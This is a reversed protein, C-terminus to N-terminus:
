NIIEFVIVFFSKKYYIKKFVQKLLNQYIKNLSLSNKLTIQAFMARSFLVVTHKKEKYCLSPSFFFVKKIHIHIM